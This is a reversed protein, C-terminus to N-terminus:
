EGTLVSWWTLTRYDPLREGNNYTFHFGVPQFLGMRLRAVKLQIKLIV